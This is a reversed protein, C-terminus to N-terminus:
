IPQNSKVMVFSNFRSILNASYDKRGSLFEFVSTKPGRSTKGREHIANPINLGKFYGSTLSATGLLVLLFAAIQRWVEQPLQFTISLTKLAVGM